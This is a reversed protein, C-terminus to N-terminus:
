VESTDNFSYSIMQSVANPKLVPKYWQKTQPLILIIRKEYRERLNFCYKKFESESKDTEFIISM